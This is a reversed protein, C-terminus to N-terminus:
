RAEDGGGPGGEGAGTEGLHRLEFDRGGARPGQTGGEAMVPLSRHATQRTTQITEQQRIMRRYDQLFTVYGHLPDPPDQRMGMKAQRIRLVRVKEM